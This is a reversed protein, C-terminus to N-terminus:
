TESDNETIKPASDVVSALIGFLPSSMRAERWAQGRNTVSDLVQIRM